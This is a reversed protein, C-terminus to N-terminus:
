YRNEPPPNNFSRSAPSGHSKEIESIEWQVTGFHVLGKDIIGGSVKKKIQPTLSYLYDKFRIRYANWASLVWISLFAKRSFKAFYSFHLKCFNENLTETASEQTLPATRSSTFCFVQSNDLFIRSKHCLILVMPGRERSCCGGRFIKSRIDIYSHQLTHLAYAPPPMVRSSQTSLITYPLSSYGHFNFCM